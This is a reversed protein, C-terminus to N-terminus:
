APAWTGCDETEFWPSDVVVTQPGDALNNSIIDGTDSSSLKAWYCNTGGETHYTGAKIDTGVKYLGDSFTARQKAALEKEGQKVARERRDLDRELEGLAAEREDVESLDAQIANYQVLIDDYQRQVVENNSESAAFEDSLRDATAEAEDLRSQIAGTGAAGAIGAGLLFALLPVGFRRFWRASLFSPLRPLNM